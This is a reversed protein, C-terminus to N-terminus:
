PRTGHMMIGVILGRNGRVVAEADLSAATEPKLWGMVVWTLGQPQMAKISQAQPLVAHVAEAQILVIDLPLQAQMLVAVRNSRL